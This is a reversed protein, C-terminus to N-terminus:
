LDMLHQWCYGTSNEFERSSIERPPIVYVGRQASVTQLSATIIDIKTLHWKNVVLASLLIRIGPPSYSESDIKVSYREWDENGYPFIRAKM